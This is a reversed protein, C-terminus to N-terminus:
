LLIQFRLCSAKLLSWSKTAKESGVFLLVFAHLLLFSRPSGFAQLQSWILKNINKNHQLYGCFQSGMMNVVWKAPWLTKTQSHVHLLIQATSSTHRLHSIRAYLLSSWKKALAHRLVSPLTSHACLNGRAQPPGDASTDEAAKCQPKLPPAHHAQKGGESHSARDRDITTNDKNPFSLWKSSCQWNYFKLLETSSLSMVIKCDIKLTTFVHVETWFHFM